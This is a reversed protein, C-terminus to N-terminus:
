NPKAGQEIPEGRVSRYRGQAEFQGVQQDPDFRVSRRAWVESFRVWAAIM